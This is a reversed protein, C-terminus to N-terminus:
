FARPLPSAVSKFPFKEHPSIKSAHPAAKQHPSKLPPLGETEGPAPHFLIGSICLFLSSFTRQSLPVSSNGSIIPGM